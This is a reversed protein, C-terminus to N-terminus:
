FQSIKVKQQQETSLKFHCSKDTIQRRLFGMTKNEDRFDKRPYLSLPYRSNHTLIMMFIRRHVLLSTIFIHNLRLILELM